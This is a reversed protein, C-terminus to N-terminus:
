PRLWMNLVPTVARKTEDYIEFPISVLQMGNNKQITFHLHPGTSFGTNGSEAIVEGESVRYGIGIRISELALHAYLAMTGDDHLIRIFNARQAYDERDIGGTFFDNAIDMVIGDRAACIPTGVPMAIDIAYKSQVDRHSYAGNFGQSIRFTNGVKFPPRYPQSPHHAANPDGFCYRYSYQYAYFKEQSAPWIHLVETKSDPPVVRRAPMPPDTLVNTGELLVFEMEVPGGYENLVSIVPEADTGTNTVLVRDEIGAVRVQKVKVPQETDPAVNSFHLVGNKDRYEYLKEAPVPTVTGMYFLSSILCSIIIKWIMSSKM